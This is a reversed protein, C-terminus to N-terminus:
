ARVCASECASECACGCARACVQIFLKTQLGLHYPWWAALSLRSIKGSRADKGLLATTLKATAATSASAAVVIGAAAAHGLVFTM